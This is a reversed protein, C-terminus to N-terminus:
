LSDVETTETSILEQDLKKFPKHATRRFKKEAKRNWRKSLKSTKISLKESGYDVVTRGKERLEIQNKKSLDGSTHGQKAKKHLSLKGM